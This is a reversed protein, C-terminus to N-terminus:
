LRPSRRFVFTIARMPEYWPVVPMAILTLPEDYTSLFGNSGSIGPTTCTSLMMHARQGKSFVYGSHSTKQARWMSSTILNWSGAVIAQRIASGIEVALPLQTGCCSYQVTSRSIQSRWSMRSIASSTILPKPRVPSHNPM